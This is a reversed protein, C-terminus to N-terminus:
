GIVSCGGMAAIIVACEERRSTAEHPHGHVFLRGSKIQIEYLNMCFILHNRGADLEAKVVALDRKAKLLNQLASFPTCEPSGVIMYPRQKKILSLARKRCELKDFDWIYGDAEPVTLDLSFDGRM